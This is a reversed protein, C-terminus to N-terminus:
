RGKIFETKSELASIRSDYSKVVVVMCLFIIVSISIQALIFKNDSKM